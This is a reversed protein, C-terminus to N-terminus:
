TVAKPLRKREFLRQWLSTNSKPRRVLTRRSATELHRLLKKLLASDDPSFEGNESLVITGDSYPATFQFDRHHLLLSYTAGRMDTSVLKFRLIRAADDSVPASFLRGEEDLYVVEPAEGNLLRDYGLRRHLLSAVRVEFM